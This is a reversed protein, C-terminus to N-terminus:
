GSRLLTLEGTCFGGRRVHPEDLRQFPPCAKPQLTRLFQRTKSITQLFYPLLSVSDDCAFWLLCEIFMGHPRVNNAAPRIVAASAPPTAAWSSWFSPLTLKGVEQSGLTCASNSRPTAM